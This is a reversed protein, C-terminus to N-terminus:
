DEANLAEMMEEVSNFPGTLNRGHKVDDIAAVTEANPQELKMEFPIGQERIVKKLFVNIATSMNLGIESLIEEVDRKVDEDVRVNLNTTAM